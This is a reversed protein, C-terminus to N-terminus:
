YSSGRLALSPGVCITSMYWSYTYWWGSSQVTMQCTKLLKLKQDKLFSSVVPGPHSLQEATLLLSKSSSVLPEQNQAEGIRSGFECCLNKQFDGLKRCSQIQQLDQGGATIRKSSDKQLGRVSFNTRQAELRSSHVGLDDTWPSLTAVLPKSLVILPTYPLLSM